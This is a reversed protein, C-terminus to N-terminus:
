CRYSKYHQALLPLIKGFSTQITSGGGHILVLPAGEGHIEYYMKLGNVLAYGSDKKIQNVESEAPMSKDKSNTCNIIIFLSLIPLILKLM